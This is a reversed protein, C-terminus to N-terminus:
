MHTGVKIVYPGGGLIPGPDVFFFEARGAM